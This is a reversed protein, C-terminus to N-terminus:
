QAGEDEVAGKVKRCEKFATILLPAFRFEWITVANRDHEFYPGMPIGKTTVMKGM